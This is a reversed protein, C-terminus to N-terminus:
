IIQYLILLFYVFILIKHYFLYIIKIKKTPIKLLIKIKGYINIYKKPILGEEESLSYFELRNNKSLILDLSKPEFFNCSICHDIATSKKLVGLYNYM